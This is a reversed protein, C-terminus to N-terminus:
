PKDVPPLAQLQEDLRGIAARRFVAPEPVAGHRREHERVYAAAWRHYNTFEAHLRTRKGTAQSVLGFSREGDSSDFISWWLWIPVGWELSVKAQVLAMRAQEREAEERSLKQRRAIEDITFGIEGIFVRKGSVDRPPLHAEVYDLNAFARDRLTDESRPAPWGQYGQMEYSSISVFDVHSRPLVTNVLRKVGRTRARNVHNVELYSYVAVGRSPMSAKAEDIAATRVDLWEQFAALREAPLDADNEVQQGGAMWDGEWNGILFTKGSGAYRTLLHETLRRFEDRLSERRQPTLPKTHWGDKGGHAWLLMVRFPQDLIREFHPHKVVTDLTDYGVVDLGEKVLERRTLSIKVIDSGMDGMIRYAEHLAPKGRLEAVIEQEPSLGGVWQAGLVQCFFPAPSPPENVLEAYQRRRAAAAEPSADFLERYEQELQQLRDRRGDTPDASRAPEASTDMALVAAMLFGTTTLRKRQIAMANAQM